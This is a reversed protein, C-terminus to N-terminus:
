NEAKALVDSQPEEKEMEGEVKIYIIGGRRKGEPESYAQIIYDENPLPGLFRSEQCARGSSGRL